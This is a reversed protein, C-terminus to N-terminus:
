IKRKLSKYFISRNGTHEELRRTNRIEDYVFCSPIVELNYKLYINNCFYSDFLISESIDTYEEKTINLIDDDSYPRLLGFIYRNGELIINGDLDTSMDFCRKTIVDIYRNDGIKNLYLKFPTGDRVFMVSGDTYLLKRWYLTGDIDLIFDCKM